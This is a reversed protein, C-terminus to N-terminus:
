RFAEFNKDIKSPAANSVNQVLAPTCKAVCLSQVSRWVDLSLKQKGEILIQRPDSLGRTGCICVEMRDRTEAAKKVKFV